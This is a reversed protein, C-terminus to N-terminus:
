GKITRNVADKLRDAHPKRARETAPRLYPREPLVTGGYEQVVAYPASSGGFSVAVQVYGATSAGVEATEGVRGSNALDRSDSNPPLGPASPIHGAGSIAGEDLSEVTDERIAEATVELAGAVNRVLAPSSLRKLRAIHNRAGNGVIM